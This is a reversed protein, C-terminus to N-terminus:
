SATIPRPPAYHRARDRPAAGRTGRRLELRLRPASVLRFFAIPFRRTRRNVTSATIPRPPAYHRARDRPAAGRTGRRLELRLRPASVLRFFAIPFRRTRRNVTSATIPRPPAYHRARDRPAA